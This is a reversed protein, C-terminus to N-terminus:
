NGAKLYRVPAHELRVEQTLDLGSKGHSNGFGRIWDDSPRSYVIRLPNSSDSSSREELCEAM